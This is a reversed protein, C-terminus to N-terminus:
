CGNPVLPWRAADEAENRAEISAEDGAAFGGEWVKDLPPPPTGALEEDRLWLRLLHRKGNGEDQFAERGHLIRRNNFFLVDGKQYEVRYALSAATFHLADLAAGQRRTLLPINSPRFGQPSRVLAGRSFVMEPAASVDGLFMVPRRYFDGVGDPPRDFPWDPKALESLLDPRTTALENYISAVPCFIGHGGNASAQIVFMAIVDAAPDTHFPQSSHTLMM